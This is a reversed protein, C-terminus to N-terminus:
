LCRGIRHTAKRCERHTPPRLRAMASHAPQRRERNHKNPKRAQPLRAGALSKNPAHHETPHPPCSSTFGFHTRSRYPHAHLYTHCRSHAHKSTRPYSRLCTSTRQIHVHRQTPYPPSSSAVCGYTWEANQPSRRAHTYTTRIHTNTSTYECAETHM